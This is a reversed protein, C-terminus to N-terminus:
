KERNSCQGKQFSFHVTPSGLHKYPVMTFWVPGYLVMTSWLFLQSGFAKMPLRATYQSVISSWVPGHPVILPWPPGYLVMSSWIPGYSIVLSQLSEYPTGNSNVFKLKLQTDTLSHTQADTLKHIQPTNLHKHVQFISYGSFIKITECVM